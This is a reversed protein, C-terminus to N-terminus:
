FGYYGSYLSSPGRRGTRGSSNSTPTPGPTQFFPDSKTWGGRDPNAKINARNADNNPRPTACDITDYTNWPSASIQPSSQSINRHHHYSSQDVTSPPPQQYKPMDLNTYTNRRQTNSQFVGSADLDFLSYSRTDRAKRLEPVSPTPNMSTRRFPNDNGGCAGYGVPSISAIQSAELFDRLQKQAQPLNHADRRECQFVFACSGLDNPHHMTALSPHEEITTLSINFDSKIQWVLEQFYSSKVIATVMSSLPLTMCVEEIIPESATLAQADGLDYINQHYSLDHRANVKSMSQPSAARSNFGPDSYWDKDKSGNEVMDLIAQKFNFLNIVNKAPTRAVVNDGTDASAGQTAFEEATSFKVYVGYQKMIRQINKGGVGIIRKHYAEPVFFSLEAPLEEQLLELGNLTRTCQPSYVNIFFTSDSANEFGIKVNTSKMIKNVKGNKKGSIFERHETALEIQAKCEKQFLKFAFERELSRLADRLPGPQGSIEFCYNQYKIEARSAKCINFILENLQHQAPLQIPQSSPINNELWLWGSFVDSTMHTVGKITRSIDHENQGCICIFSKKSDASPFIISTGHDEMTNLLEQYKLIPLWDLKRPQLPFQRTVLNRKAMQVSQALAEVAKLTNAKEGVVLVDGHHDLTHTDLLNGYYRPLHIKTNTEQELARILTSKVGCVLNILQTPIPLKEVHSGDAAAILTVLEIRAGEVDDPKGQISIYVSNLQTSSRSDTDPFEIIVNRLRMIDDIKLQFESKVAGDLTLSDSTIFKYLVSAESPYKQLISRQAYIVQLSPGSLFVVYHSHGNPSMLDNDLASSQLQYACNEVVRDCLVNLKNLPLGLFEVSDCLSNRVAPQALCFALSAQDM